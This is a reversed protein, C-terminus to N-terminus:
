RESESQYQKDTEVSTGNTSESGDTSDYHQELRREFEPETIEGEIYQEQLREVPNGGSDAATEDTEEDTQVLRYGGYIVVLVLLLPVFGFIRMGGMGGMMGGMMLMMFAMMLLPLVLLLLSILLIGRFLTKKDVM